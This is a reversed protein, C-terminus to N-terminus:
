AACWHMRSPCCSLELLLSIHCSRKAPVLIETLLRLLMKPRLNKWCNWIPELECHITSTALDKCIGVPCRVKTTIKRPFLLKWAFVLPFAEHKASVLKKFPCQRSILHTLLPNLPPCEVLKFGKRSAMQCDLWQSGAVLGILACLLRHLHRWPARPWPSVEGAQCSKNTMPHPSRLM